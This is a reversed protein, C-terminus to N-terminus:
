STDLNKLKLFFSNEYDSITKSGTTSAIITINMTINWFSYKVSFMNFYISYTFLNNTLFYKMIKFILSTFSLNDLTVLQLNPYPINHLSAIHILCLM